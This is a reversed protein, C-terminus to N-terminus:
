TTVYQYKGKSLWKIKELDCLDKLADHFTQKSMQKGEYLHKIQQTQFDNNGSGEIVKQIEVYVAETNKSDHRRDYTALIKAEYEKGTIEICLNDNIEFTEVQDYDDRDHRSAVLKIYRTNEITKNIGIIFDAEQAFITSGRMSNIGYSRENSGKMIHNIVFLTSSYKDALERLRKAIEKAIEEDSNSDMTLRSLSDM